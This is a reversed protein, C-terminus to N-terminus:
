REASKVCRAFLWQRLEPLESAAILLMRAPGSLAAGREWKGVHKDDTAGVSRAFEARTLGLSKRLEIIATPTM